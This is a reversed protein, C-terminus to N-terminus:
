IYLVRHHSIMLRNALEEYSNGLESLVKKGQPKPFEIKRHRRPRAAIIILKSKSVSIEIM